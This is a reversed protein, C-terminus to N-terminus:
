LGDHGDVEAAHGGIQANRERATASEQYSTGRLIANKGYRQKIQLMTEQIRSERGAAEAERQLTDPDTFLDLQRPTQSVENQNRLGAVDIYFRRVPLKRDTVSEYISVAADIIKRSSNTPLSTGGADTFSHIGHAMKPALRGYWDTETEGQWQGNVLAERDYVVALSVSSAALCKAVLELAMQEAMERVIIRGEDFRYPRALVQGQSLSSSSPRYAKIDAMTCTELGWAHDILLEADVGFERFLADEHHLSFRAIDGMTFCGYKELRKAIGRGVRWFSTLPRHSWLQERYTRENLEAIRVGDADAPVHKAQIDMAVKALYLNSGIGGTATIGTLKLIEAIIRRVLEHPTANYLSLYRTLDIFVEDISYVHIDEAAAFRLYVKEYIRASTEMYLKMRPPAVIYELPKGTTALVEKAKEVVEFLRSRGSLGYSKLSPTVALCITKETRREDAVVLNTTLPDLGREVCEVSAYFSKLDIAAYVSDPM